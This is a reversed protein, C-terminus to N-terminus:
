SPEDNISGHRVFNSEEKRICGRDSRLLKIKRDLQNEVENKFEKFKEFSESKQRILYIYGYRSHDDTFTIFYSYGGRACISLPGCVDTHILDLLGNARTGKNTFPAKTMKGMVCFECTDIPEFAFQDLLGVNQLRKIRRENIHGLRYHWMLTTSEHSLKRKKKDHEVSLVHESTDLVYLGNVLHAIGFCVDDRFLTCSKNKIVVNFSDLDLCSISIINRTICPVICVDKLEM